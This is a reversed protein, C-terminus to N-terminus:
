SKQGENSVPTSHRTRLAAACLALAPTAAIACHEVRAEFSSRRDRIIAINDNGVDWHYGKPVLTVAADISSTFERAATGVWRDTEPDVWVSDKVPAWSGDEQEERCGIHRQDRVFLAAMIAEDLERDRGTAKEVRRALELFNSM